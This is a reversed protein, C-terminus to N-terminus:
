ILYYGHKQFPKMAPTTFFSGDGFSNRNPAQPTKPRNDFTQKRKLIHSAGLSSFSTNPSIPSRPSSNQSKPYIISRTHVFFKDPASAEKKLIFNEESDENSEEFLLEGPLWLNMKKIEVKKSFIEFQYKEVTKRLRELEELERENLKKPIIPCWQVAILISGKPQGLSTKLEIKIKNAFESSLDNNKVWNVVASGEVVNKNFLNVDIVGPLTNLKQNELLFSYKFTQQFNDDTFDSSRYELNGKIGFKLSRQGGKLGNVKIVQLQLCGHIGLEDLPQSVVICSLPDKVEDFAKQEIFKKRKKLDVLSFFGDNDGDLIKFVERAEDKTISSDFCRLGARFELENIKGSKDVDFFSFLESETKNESNLGQLVRRYLTCELQTSKISSELAITSPESLISPVHLPLASDSPKANPDTFSINLDPLTYTNLVGCFESSSIPLNSLISHKLKSAFKFVLSGFALEQPNSPKFLINQVSHNIFDNVWENSDNANETPDVSILIIPADCDM